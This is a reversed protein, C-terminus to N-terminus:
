GSKAPTGRVVLEEYKAELVWRTEVPVAHGTTM